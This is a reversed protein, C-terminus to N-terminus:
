YVIKRYIIRFDPKFNNSLANNWNKYNDSVKRPGDTGLNPGKGKPKAYSNNFGYKPRFGRNFENEFNNM